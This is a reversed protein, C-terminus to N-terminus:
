GQYALTSGSYRDCVVDRGQELAPRVVEAVHQARDAAMLLAEARVDLESGVTPDLVIARIRAGVGTGGPEHTLVAGLRAALRAAQTSKGSGEGGEFAILRGSTTM